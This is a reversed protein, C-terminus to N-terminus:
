LPRGGAAEHLKELDQAVRADEFRIQRTGGSRQPVRIYNDATVLYGSSTDRGLFAIVFTPLEEVTGNFELIIAAATQPDPLSECRVEDPRPRMVSQGPQVCFAAAAGFLGAPFQAFYAQQAGTPAAGPAPAEGLSVPAGCGALTFASILM